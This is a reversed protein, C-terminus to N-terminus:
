LDSFFDDEEQSTALAHDAMMALAGPVGGSTVVITEWDLKSSINRREVFYERIHEESFPDLGTEVLLHDMELETLDPTKRGTVIVIAGECEGDRLRSLLQYRLWREAEVPAEEYSDFLFVIPTTEATLGVLSEFFADNIQREAHRREVDSDARLPANRDRADAAVTDGNSAANEGDRFSELGRRWDVQHRLQACLEILNSLLSYRQCYSVLEVSKASLTQGALNDYKVGLDFCLSKLEELSFHREINRRLTTLGSAQGGVNPGTFSNIVNNLHSFHSPRDLKNRLLRVLGLHDQIEHKERPNRYDVRAVPLAVDPEQCYHEMKGVLWTKGMDKPAEILMIAQRTEPQLLKQFGRFKKEQDVFLFEDYSSM